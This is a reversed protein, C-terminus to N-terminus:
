CISGEYAHSGKVYAIFEDYDRIYDAEDYSESALVLLTAGASFDYMERWVPTDIYLGENPDNLEVIQREKGDDLLIKCSGGLCILCQKLRKHAHFGRREGEAVRYIYYIRRISFPVDADEELFTLAGRPDM